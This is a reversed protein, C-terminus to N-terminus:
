WFRSDIEYRDARNDSARKEYTAIDKKVLAISEEVEANRPAIKELLKLVTKLEPLKM